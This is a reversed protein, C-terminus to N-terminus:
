SAARHPPRGPKRAPLHPAVADWAARWSGATRIVQSSSPGSPHRSWEAITPRTGHTAVWAHLAAWVAADRAASAETHATIGHSRRAPGLPRGPRPLPAGPAVQAWAAAWSGFLSVVIPASPSQAAATWAARSPIAGHADWWAALAPLATAATWGRVRRPQGAREALQRVRERSVGLAEAITALTGGAQALAAMQRESASLQAAPVGLLHALAGSRRPADPLTPDRSLAAARFAAWSGFHDRIAWSTCPRAAWTEWAQPTPAVGYIACFREYAPVAQDLPRPPIVGAAALARGWGGWHKRLTSACVGDHTRAWETYGRFTYIGAAAATRISDLIEAPTHRTLHRPGWRAPPPYGAAAWAAAWSGCHTYVAGVSPSRDGWEQQTWWRGRAAGAARLAALVTEATWATPAFAVRTTNAVAM